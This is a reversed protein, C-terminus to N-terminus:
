YNFIVSVHSSKDCFLKAQYFYLHNCLSTIYLYHFICLNVYKEYNFHINYIYHGSIALANPAYNKEKLNKETTIIIKTTETASKKLNKTERKWSLLYM